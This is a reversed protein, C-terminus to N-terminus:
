ILLRDFGRSRKALEAPHLGERGRRRGGAPITLSVIRTARDAMKEIVAEPDDDPAAFLYDVISGVVRAEFRGDPHKLV